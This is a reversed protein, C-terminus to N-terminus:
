KGFVFRMTLGNNGVGLNLSPSTTKESLKNAKGNYIAAAKRHMKNVKIDMAIVSIMGACQGFLVVMDRRNFEDDTNIGFDYTLSAITLAGFIANSVTALKRAKKFQSYAEVNPKMVKGADKNRVFEGDVRYSYLGPFLFRKYEVLPQTQAFVCQMQILFLIPFLIKNLMTIDTKHTILLNKNMFLGQQM